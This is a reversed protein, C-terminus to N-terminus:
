KTSIGTESEWQDLNEKILAKIAVQRTASINVLLKAIQKLEDTSSCEDIYREMRVKWFEEEPSPEFKLM